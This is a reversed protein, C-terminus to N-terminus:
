KLMKRRVRKIREFGVAEEKESGKVRVFLITDLKASKATVVAWAHSRSRTPVVEVLVTDGVRIELQTEPRFEVLYEHPRLKALQM